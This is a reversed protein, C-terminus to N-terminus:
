TSPFSESVFFSLVTFLNSLILSPLLLASPDFIGFYNSIANVMPLEFVKEPDGIITIFPIVLIVPLADTIGNVLLILTLLYLKYRNGDSGLKCLILAHNILYLKKSLKKLINEKHDM